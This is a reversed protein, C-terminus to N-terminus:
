NYCLLIKNYIPLNILIKIYYQNNLQKVKRYWKFISRNIKIILIKLVNKKPRKRIDYTYFKFNYLILSSM